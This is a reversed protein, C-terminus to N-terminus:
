SKNLHKSIAVYKLKVTTTPKDGPKATVTSTSPNIDTLTVPTHALVSGSRPPRTENQHEIPSRAQVFFRFTAGRGEDSCYTHVTDYPDIQFYMGYESAVEIRGGM